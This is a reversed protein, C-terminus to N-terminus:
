SDDVVPALALVVELPAREAEREELDGMLLRSTGGATGM